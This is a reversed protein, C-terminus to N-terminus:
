FSSFLSAFLGRTLEPIPSLSTYGVTFRTFPSTQSTHGVTFRTFSSWPPMGLLSVPTFSALSAHGVTFRTTPLCRPLYPWCHFPHYPPMDPLYVWCHFPFLRLLSARPLRKAPYGPLSLPLDRRLPKEEEKGTESNTLLGARRERKM